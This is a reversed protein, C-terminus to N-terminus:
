TCNMRHEQAKRLKFLSGVCKGSWPDFSLREMSDLFSTLVNQTRCYWPIDEPRLKGRPSFTTSSNSIQMGFACWTGITAVAATIFRRQQVDRIWMIRLIRLRRRFRSM